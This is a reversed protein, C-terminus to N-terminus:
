AGWVRNRLLSMINYVLISALGIIKNSPVKCAGIVIQLISIAKWGEWSANYYIYEVVELCSAGKILFYRCVENCKQSAYQFNVVILIVPPYQMYIYIVKKSNYLLSKM